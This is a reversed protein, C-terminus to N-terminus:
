CQLALYDVLDMMRHTTGYEEGYEDDEGEEELAGVIRRAGELMVSVANSDPSLQKVYDILPSELRVGVNNQEFMGITRYECSPLDYTVFVTIFQSM